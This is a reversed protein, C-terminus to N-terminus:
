IRLLKKQWKKTKTLVFWFAASAAISGVAFILAGLATKPVADLVYGHVLYLEYSIVGVAYLPKATFRRFLFWALMMLGLGVPLKICLQVFNVLVTPMARVAPLQKVALFVVGFGTLAIANRLKLLKHPKYESIMLGCFFSFAQEARIEPHIFFFVVSVALFIPRRFRDLVRVRRVLYFVAYWLFLYSLYWGKSYLPRLCTLDLAFDLFNFKHRPWYLAVQVIMYPLWVALFRKRWWGTWPTRDNSRKAANWSENLGYASLVLFIAVGIGGFPTFVKVAGGGFQGALHCIMIALMAIGKYVTTNYKSMFSDECM